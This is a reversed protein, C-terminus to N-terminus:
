CAKISADMEGARVYLPEARMLDSLAIGALSAARPPDALCRSGLRLAASGVIADGPELMAGVESEALARPSGLSALGGAAFREVWIQGRPAALAVLLPQAIGLSRAEAAVLQTSRVGRVSADWVLALANAAALGIRLGTFSGPGIEGVIHECRIASGGFPALLRAIAPMLSEAHGRDMAVTSEALVRGDLLLALSLAHGTAIVLTQGTLRDPM